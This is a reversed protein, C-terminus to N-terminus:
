GELEVQLISWDIMHDFFGIGTQITSVGKGDLQLSIEIKTEKTIREIKAIRNM